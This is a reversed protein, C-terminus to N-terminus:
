LFCAGQFPDAVAVQVVAVGGFGGGMEPLREGDVLADSGGAGLVDLFGEAVVLESGSRSAM